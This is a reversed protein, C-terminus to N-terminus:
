LGAKKMASIIAERMTKAMEGSSYKEMFPTELFKDPAWTKFGNHVYEAYQTALDSGASVVMSMGDSSVKTKMSEALHGSRSKFRHNTRATQVIDRGIKGWAISVAPVIADGARNIGRVIENANQLKFSAM